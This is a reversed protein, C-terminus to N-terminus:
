LRGTKIYNDLYKELQEAILELMQSEKDSVIGDERAIDMLHGLIFQFVEDLLKQVDERRDSLIKISATESLTGLIEPLDGIMDKLGRLIKTEDSSIRGDFRATNQLQVLIFNFRNQLIRVDVL